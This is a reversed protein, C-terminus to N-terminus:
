KGICFRSFIEGLLDDATFEGTISSLSQQALRLEEALFVLQSDDYVLNLANQIHKGALALDQLHRQRAMFMGETEAGPHLGAFEGLKRRLLDIGAGTKASLYVERRDAGMTGAHFAGPALDMKNYVRIVPLERPLSDLIARDEFTEGSRCDMLMLVLDAKDLAARAREIGEREVADATERLGATDTLHLPMGEVEIGHSVTDRTTGPVDTVIAREQGAIANILSSKGANPPGAVVVRVGDKLPEVRPRDLWSQLETALAGCDHALAADSGDEDEEEAYDIAREAQASLV